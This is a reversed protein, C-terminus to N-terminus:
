DSFENNDTKNTPQDHGLNRRKQYPVCEEVREPNM